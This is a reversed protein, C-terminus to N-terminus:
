VYQYTLTLYHTHYTNSLKRNDYKVEVGDFEYSMTEDNYGGKHHHRYTNDYLLSFRSTKYNYYFAANNDGWIKNVANNTRISGNGGRLDSKLTIEVVTTFDAGLLQQPPTRYVNVKYVDDKSIAAIESASAQVGNLLFRVGEGEYSVEGQPSVNMLPIENLSHLTNIYKKMAKRPIYYSDHDEFQQVLKPTVVIEALDKSKHMFFLRDKDNRVDAKAPDFGPHSFLIFRVSDSYEFKGEKDSILKAVTDNSNGIFTIKVDAVPNRSQDVVTGSYQAYANFYFAIMGLLLFLLKKM